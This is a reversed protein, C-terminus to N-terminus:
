DQITVLVGNEFYLYGNANTKRYVWQSRTGRPTITRNITTPTGWSSQMVREMTMGLQVGAKAREALEIKMAARAARVRTTEIQDLLATIAKDTNGAQYPLTADFARKHDGTRLFEKAAAIDKAKKADLLQATAASIEDFKFAQYAELMALGAAPNTDKTAIATELASAKNALLKELQEKARSEARLRNERAQAYERKATYWNDFKVVAFIVAIVSFISVVIIIHQRNSLAM